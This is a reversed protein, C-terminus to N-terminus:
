RSTSQPKASPSGATKVAGTATGSETGTGAIEDMRDAEHRERAASLEETIRQREAESMPHTDRAAPMDNVTPWAPAAAPRAPTAAPEALDAIQSTCGGAALSAGLVAILGFTRLRQCHVFYPM